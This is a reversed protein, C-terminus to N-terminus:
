KRPALAAFWALAINQQAPLFVTSGTRNTDVSEKQRVWVKVLFDMRPFSQPCHYFLHGFGSQYPASSGSSTVNITTAKSGSEVWVAAASFAIRLFIDACAGLWWPTLILLLTPPPSTPLPRSVSKERREEPLKGKLNSQKSIWIRNARNRCTKYTQTAYVTTVDFTNERIWECECMSLSFCPQLKAETAALM